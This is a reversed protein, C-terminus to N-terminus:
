ASVSAEYGAERVAALVRPASSKDVAVTASGIEIKEVRADEVHEIAKRIRDVCKQCHMGQIALRVPVREM